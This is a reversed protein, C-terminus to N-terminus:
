LIGSIQFFPGIQSLIRQIEPQDREDRMCGAVSRLNMNVTMVANARVDVHLKSRAQDSWHRRM